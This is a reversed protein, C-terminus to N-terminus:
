PARGLDFDFPVLHSGRGDVTGRSSIASGEKEFVRRYGIRIHARNLSRPLLIEYTGTGSNDIILEAQGVTFGAAGGLQRVRVEDGDVLAIRITGEAQSRLFAIELKREPVFAVGSQPPPREGPSSPEATPPGAGGWTTIAREALRRVASEPIVAAAGGAALLAALSAALLLRPARSHRPPAMLTTPDMHPVPHDLSALWVAIRRDALELSRMRYACGDCTELHLRLRRRDWAAHEGDTFGQLEPDSPHM